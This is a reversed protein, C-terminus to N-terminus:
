HSFSSFIIPTISFPGIHHSGGGGGNLDGVLIPSFSLAKCCMSKHITLNKIKFYPNNTTITMGSEYTRNGKIRVLKQLATHPALM